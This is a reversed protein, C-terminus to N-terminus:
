ITESGVRRPWSRRVWELITLGLLTALTITAGWLLSAPKYQWEVVHAGPDLYVGRVVGDVRYYPRPTGDVTVRWGPYWVESLVLLAPASVQAELVIRNPTLARVTTTQWGRPGELGPGGEVLAGSAPNFGDDLRQQAVQWSSVPEVYTM